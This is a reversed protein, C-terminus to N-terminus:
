RNINLEIGVRATAARMRIGIPGRSRNGNPDVDSFVM